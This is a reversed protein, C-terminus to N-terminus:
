FSMGNPLPQNVTATEWVHPCLVILREPGLARASKGCEGMKHFAKVATQEIVMCGTGRRGAAVQQLWPPRLKLSLGRCGVGGRIYQMNIGENQSTKAKDKARHGALKEQTVAM